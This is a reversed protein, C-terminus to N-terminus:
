QSRNKVISVKMEGNNYEYSVRDVISRVLHMGLGGPQREEASRTVDVKPIENPDFPEVDHDTFCLRIREDSIDIAISIFEGEGVNHRVM